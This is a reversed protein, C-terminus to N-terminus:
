RTARDRFVAIQACHERKHGYFMYAIVDELDYEAGYWPLIGAERRRALPIRAFLSSAHEYTARYEALTQEATQRRRREVEADNFADGQAFLENM